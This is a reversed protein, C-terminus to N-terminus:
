RGDERERRGSYTGAMREELVTAKDMFADAVRESTWGAAIFLAVAYHLVDVLEEGFADRDFHRSAAHAKWGVHEAAEHVEDAMGFLMQGVWIARDDGELATPDTGFAELQLNWQRLFLHEM